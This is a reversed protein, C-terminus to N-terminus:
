AAWGASSPVTISSSSRTRRGRSHCGRFRRFPPARRTSPWSRAMTSARIIARRRSSARTSGRMWRSSCRRALDSDGGADTARLSREARRPPTLLGGIGFGHSTSSDLVAPREAAASGARGHRRRREALRSAALVRDGLRRPVRASRDGAAETIGDHIGSIPDTTVAYTFPPYSNQLYDHATRRARTSTRTPLGCTSSCAFPGPSPRSSATSCRGTRSTKTSDTICSTACTARRDAICRDRLREFPSAGEGSRIRNGATPSDYRLFSAVDRTTPM